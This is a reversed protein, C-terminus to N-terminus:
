SCCIDADDLEGGTQSIGSEILAVRGSFCRELLADLGLVGDRSGDRDFPDDVGGM